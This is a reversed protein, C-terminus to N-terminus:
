LLPMPAPSSTPYSSPVETSVFPPLYYFGFRKPSPLYDLPPRAHPQSWPDPTQSALCIPTNMTSTMTPRLAKTLSTTKVYLRIMPSQLTWLSELQWLPKSNQASRLLRQKASPSPAATSIIEGSGPTDERTSLSVNALLIKCYFLSPIRVIM